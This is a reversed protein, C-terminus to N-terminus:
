GGFETFRGVLESGAIGKILHSSFSPRVSQANIPDFFSGFHYGLALLYVASSMSNLQASQTANYQETEERRM